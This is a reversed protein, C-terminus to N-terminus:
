KKDIEIVTNQNLFDHEAKASIYEFEFGDTIEDANPSADKVVPQWYDGDGKVAVSIIKLKENWNIRGLFENQDKKILTESYKLIFQSYNITFM